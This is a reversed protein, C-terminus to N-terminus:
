VICRRAIERDVLGKANEGAYDWVKQEDAM